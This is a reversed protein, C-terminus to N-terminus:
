EQEPNQLLLKVRRTHSQLDCFYVGSIWVLHIGLYADRQISVIFVSIAIRVDGFM